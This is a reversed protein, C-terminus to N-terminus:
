HLEKRDSITITGRQPTNIRRGYLDHLFTRRSANQDHQQIGTIDTGERYLLIDYTLSTTGDPATVTLTVDTPTDTLTYHGNGEVTAKEAAAWALVDVSTMWSPTEATYSFIDPSFAPSLELSSTGAGVYINSLAANHLTEEDIEEEKDNGKLFDDPSFGPESRDLRVSLISEDRVGFTYSCIEGTNNRIYDIKDDDSPQYVYFLRTGPTKWVEKLDVRFNYFPNGALIQIPNGGDHWVVERTGDANLALMGVKGRINMNTPVAFEAGFYITGDDTQMIKTGLRDATHDFIYPRPNPKVGTRNPRIGRVMAMRNSYGSNFGGVGQETPNLASMLFNSNSKGDWGWNIHFFGEGDYGDCVFAHGGSNDSAIGEIYVPRSEQLEAIIKSNWVEYSGCQSHYLLEITTPDYDFHCLLAPLIRNNATGSSPGYITRLAIGLHLMLESVERVDEASTDFINPSSLTYQSRHDRMKEWEYVASSFKIIYEKTTFGYNADMQMTGYGHTPHQHYHMIQALATTVCGTAAYAGDNSLAAPCQLNYPRQQGWRTDGLLPPIPDTHEVEYPMSTADEEAKRPPLSAIEDAYIELMTKLGDPIDTPDFTEEDSYALIPMAQDDAAAILYGQEGTTFVYLADRGDLTTQTYVLQPQISAPAARRVGKRAHTAHFKLVNQRAADLSIPSACLRSPMAAALFGAVLTALLPRHNM